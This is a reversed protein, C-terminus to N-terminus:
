VLVAGCLLCLSHVYVFVEPQHAIIVFIFTRADHRQVENGYTSL